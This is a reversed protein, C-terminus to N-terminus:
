SWDNFEKGKVGYGHKQASFADRIGLSKIRKVDEKSYERGQYTGTDEISKIFGQQHEYFQRKQHLKHRSNWIGVRSSKAQKLQSGYQNGMYRIDPIGLGKRVLDQALRRDDFLGRGYAARGGPVRTEQLRRIGRIGRYRSEALSTAQSGLPQDKEIADVGALRHDISPPAISVVGEISDGDKIILKQKKNGVREQVTENVFNPVFGGSLRLLKVDDITSGKKWVKNAITLAGELKQQEFQSALDTAQNQKLFNELSKDGYIKLSKAMLSDKQASSYKAEIPMKGPAIFDVNATPHKSTSKYGKPKLIKNLKEEYVRGGVQARMGPAKQKTAARLASRGAKKAHDQNTFYITRSLTNIGLDKLKSFVDTYSPAENRLATLSSNITQYGSASFKSDTTQAAMRAKPLRLTDGIQVAGLAFNPILGSNMVKFGSPNKSMAQLTKRDYGKGTLYEILPKGLYQQRPNEQFMRLIEQDWMNKSKIIKQAPMKFKINKNAPDSLVDKIKQQRTRPDMFNPIFGGFAYPDFGHKEEFDKKYATGAKSSKPPMIAPQKMGAFSKVTEASNYVVKGLGRVDMSKVIGPSYGSQLAGLKEEIISEPMLGASATGGSRAGGGKITLDPSVGRRLLTPALGSAIKQQQALYNTQEKILKLMLEEQKLKDGAYSNLKLALDKNQSMASVISEQIMREKDKATVIGLVDKLSGSAFSLANKFLKAFVGIALVVGPGSLVNGFGKVIGKAFDSGLGESDKGFLDNLTQGVSNLADLMKSIGPSLALEGINASLEQITLSTQAALSSITKQLQENKQQAQDTANNSIETARAYLSNERNLDKLAAKLINIQFVGGVQEAVAAKTTDALTDYQTALNKLVTLAPLTSGRIDRVAVGLEQLREITSSRQVRTFITKFSNGIVAGGRATIQQASTVAGILQDFSVGADQAVAGARALADILDDASVAFQVDVAALKNIINTTSLGADAFGNMAATLGSVADAAKMGTLRTLILADNTRRLTEEMSLGQRSFELAAEAVIDIGQSTNRAVNFLNKGFKELNSTTTGLVVNIDTLIKEFKVAQVVLEKFAISVGGIIAASAGFAIVRANSAELSKSFENASHTIKGLPQTFQKDNIRIKLGSGIRNYRDEVRRISEELGVVKGQINLPM